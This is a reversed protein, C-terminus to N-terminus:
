QKLVGQLVTYYRDAIFKAGAENYHVADALLSDDFGTHMDVTIVKSTVTTQQNAIEVVEEKMRNFNETLSATMFSTMGPALEEIIITVEPNDTQLIDIIENINSIAEDLSASDNLIDNGGPSSFLVIDSGGSSSIWDEIGELIEGSTWGGRGEHDIDFATNQFDAYNAEDRQTGIFDFDWGGEVLLKWLEYRYSEFDPRAGEVRSAGLPMIKNLANSPPQPEDEDCSFLAFPAIAMLFIFPIIKWFHSKLFKSISM